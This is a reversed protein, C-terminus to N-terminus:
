AEQTVGAGTVTVTVMHAQLESTDPETAATAVEAAGAPEAAAAAVEAAGAPVVAAVEAAGAPVVAAM